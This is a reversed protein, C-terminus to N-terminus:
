RATEECDESSRRLADILWRLMQNVTAGLPVSEFEAFCILMTKVDTAVKAQPNVLLHVQCRYRKV